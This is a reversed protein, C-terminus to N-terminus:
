TTSRVTLDLLQRPRLDVSKIDMPGGFIETGKRDTISVIRDKETVDTGVPMFVHIDNMVYVEAPRDARTSVSGIVEQGAHIVAYCAQETLHDTWGPAGTGGWDDAAATNRQVTCRMTMKSRFASM